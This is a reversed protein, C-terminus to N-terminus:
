SAAADPVETRVYGNQNLWHWTDRLTEALPRITYGLDAQARASSYYHFLGSMTTMASNLDTERGRLRAFLDGAIGAAKVLLPGARGVPGRTGATRAFQRWLEAYTINHGGLIYQSGAKAREYATLIGQTVDRVDCVCGGGRPALLPRREVVELFMRASSPKWDWPGLMFGPNVIVANLGRGVAALLAKEAEQKTVVYGCPPNGTHPTTEDAPQDHRGIGLADVSSVHLMRVGLGQAAIALLRTGDVNIQRQEAIRTWGIHVMAATHIVGEIGRMAQRISEPDTLDGRFTEVDLGALPRPDSSARVLVRVRYGTALLGRVVNNGVFGAGGTVLITM